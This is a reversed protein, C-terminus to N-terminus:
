LDVAETVMNSTALGLITKRFIGLLYVATLIMAALAVLGAGTHTKLAGLLILFEAPPGKTGPV